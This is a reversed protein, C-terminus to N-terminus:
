LCSHNPSIHSYLVISVMPHILHTGTFGEESRDVPTVATDNVTSSPALITSRELDQFPTLVTVNSFLAISVKADNIRDAMEIEERALAISDDEASRRASVSTVLGTASMSLDMSKIATTAASLTLDTEEFNYIGVLIM